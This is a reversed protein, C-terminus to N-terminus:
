SVLLARGDAGDGNGPDAARREASRRKGAIDGIREVGVDGADDGAIPQGIHHGLRKAAPEHGSPPSLRHLPGSLALLPCTSRSM